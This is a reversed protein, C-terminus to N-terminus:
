HRNAEGLRVARIYKWATYIYTHMNEVCYNAYIYMSEDKDMDERVVGMWERPVSM